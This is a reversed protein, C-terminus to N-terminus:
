LRHWLRAHLPTPLRSPPDLRRDIPPQHFRKRTDPPEVHGGADMRPTKVAVPEGVAGMRCEGGLWAEAHAASIIMDVAGTTREFEINSLHPFTSCDRDVPPVDSTGTVLDGVLASDINAGYNGDLSEISFSALLRRSTINHDVTVVTMEREWTDVGLEQTIKSSIFNTDAGSDLM